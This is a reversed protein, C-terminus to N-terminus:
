QMPTAYITYNNTRMARTYKRPVNNERRRSLVRVLLTFCSDSPWQPGGPILTVIENEMVLLRNLVRESALLEIVWELIALCEEMLMREEVTIPLIMFKARYRLVLVSTLSHTDEISILLERTGIYGQRHSAICATSIDNDADDCM